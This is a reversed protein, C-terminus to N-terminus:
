LLQGRLKSGSGANTGTPSIHQLCEEGMQYYQVPILCSAKSVFDLALKLTVPLLLTVTVFRLQPFYLKPAYNLMMQKYFFIITKYM